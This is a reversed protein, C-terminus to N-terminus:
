AGRHREDRDSHRLLTRHLQRIHNETPRLDAFAEFVLDMAEAYGAM